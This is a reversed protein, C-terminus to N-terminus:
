SALKEPWRRLRKLIGDPRVRYVALPGVGHGGTLVVYHKGKVTRVRSTNSPQDEGGSRFWAAFARRVLAEDDMTAM